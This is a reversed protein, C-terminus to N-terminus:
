ILNFDILEGWDKLSLGSPWLGARCWELPLLFKRPPNRSGNLFQFDPFHWLMQVTPNDRMQPAPLWHSLEWFESLLSLELRKWSAQDRPREASPLIGEASQLLSSQMSVVFDDTKPPSSSSDNGSGAPFDGLALKNLSSRALYLKPHTKGWPFNGARLRTRSISNLLESNRWATNSSHPFGQINMKSSIFCSLHETLAWLHELYGM